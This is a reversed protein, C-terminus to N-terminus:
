QKEAWVEVNAIKGNEPPLLPLRRIKVDLQTQLNPSAYTIHAVEGDLSLERDGEYRKNNFFMFVLRGHEDIHTFALDLVCNGSKIEIFEGPAVGRTVSLKGNGPDLEGVVVKVRAGTVSKIANVRTVFEQIIIINYSKKHKDWEISRSNRIEPPLTGTITKRVTMLYIYTYSLKFTHL